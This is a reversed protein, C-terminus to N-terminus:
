PECSRDGRVSDQVLGVHRGCTNIIGGLFPTARISTGFATPGNGHKADRNSAHHEAMTVVEGAGLSDPTAVSHPSVVGTARSPTGRSDPAGKEIIVIRDPAERKRHANVSRGSRRPESALGEPPPGISIPPDARVSGMLRQPECARIPPRCVIARGILSVFPRVPQGACNSFSRVAPTLRLDTWASWRVDRVALWFWVHSSEFRCFWNAFRDGGSGCRISRVSRRRPRHPLSGCSVSLERCRRRERVPGTPGRVLCATRIRLRWFRRTTSVM